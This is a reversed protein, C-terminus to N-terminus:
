RYQGYQSYAYRYYSPLIERCDNLIVGQIRGPKLGSVARQIAERPSTRARVVLLYGDLLDQLIAADAVPMLPPCDIIVFDFAAKAAEILRAM